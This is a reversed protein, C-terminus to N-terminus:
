SKINPELTRDRSSAFPLNEKLNEAPYFYFNMLASENKQDESLIETRTHARM